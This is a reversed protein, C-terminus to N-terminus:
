FQLSAIIACRKRLLFVLIVGLGAAVLVVPIVIAPVPVKSSSRSSVPSGTALYFSIFNFNLFSCHYGETNSARALGTRTCSVEGSLAKGTM